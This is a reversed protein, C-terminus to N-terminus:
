GAVERRLDPLTPYFTDGPCATALWDRHGAITPVTRTAGSIPNVYATTGLPDLRTVGVLAALVRVLARRAAQTPQAATLDGLLAVGVNGANFGGVHAGNNMQPPPGQTRAGFVPVPDPGSWRGEYVVGAGDIILHYGIDGFDQEVTHFHYIARVTAAPDPDGNTTVTHHVTLTQVDFFAPPFLEVGDPGFRLSEDAGWASRRLYVPGPRPSTGDPLPIAGAAAAPKRATPPGDTTNIATVRVGTAAPSPALEYEVAGAAPILASRRDGLVDGAPVPLWPGWGSPRRLRVAGASGDGSWTIGLNGVPFGPSQAGRGPRGTAALTAPVGDRVPVAALAPRSGAALAGFALATGLITRRNYAHTSM